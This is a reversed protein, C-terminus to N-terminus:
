RVGHMQFEEDAVNMRSRRIGLQLSDLESGIRLRSVDFTYQLRM